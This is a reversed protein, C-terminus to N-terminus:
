NTAKIELATNFSNYDTLKFDQFYDPINNLDLEFDKSYLSPTFHVGELVL